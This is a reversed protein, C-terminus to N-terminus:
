GNCERREIFALAEEEKSWRQSCKGNEWYYCRNNCEGWECVIKWEDIASQLLRKAEALETVIDKIIDDGQPGETFVKTRLEQLEKLWATLEGQECVVSDVTTDELKKIMDELKM